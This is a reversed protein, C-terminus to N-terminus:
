QKVTYYPTGLRNYINYQREKVLMPERAALYGKACKQTM